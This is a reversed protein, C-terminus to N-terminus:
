KKSKYNNYFEEANFGSSKTKKTKIVSKPARWNKDVVMDRVQDYDKVSSNGQLMSNITVEPARFYAEKTTKGKTYSALEADNEEQTKSTNMGKWGGEKAVKYLETKTMPVAVRILGSGGVGKTVGTLTSGAPLQITRGSKLYQASYGANVTPAADTITVFGQKIVDPSTEKSITTPILSMKYKKMAEEKRRAMEASDVDTIHEGGFGGEILNKLKYKANQMDKETYEEERMPHSYREIEAKFEPTIDKRNKYESYLDYLLNIKTARNGVQNEIAGDVADKVRKNTYYLDKVKVIGTDTQGITAKVIGQIENVNKVIDVKPIVRFASKTQLDGQTFSNTVNGDSNYWTKYTKEGKGNTVFKKNGEKDTEIIPIKHVWTGNEFTHEIDKPNDITNAIVDYLGDNVGSVKPHNDIFEKLNAGTQKSMENFSDAAKNGNKFELQLSAPLFSIGGAKDAETQIYAIRDKVGQLSETLTSDSISYGSPIYNGIEPSEIPKVKEAKLQAVKMEKQKELDAEQFKQANLAIEGFDVNPAQVTAYADVKGIAM